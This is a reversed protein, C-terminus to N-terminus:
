RTLAVVSWPVVFVGQCTWHVLSLDGPLSSVNKKKKRSHKFVKKIAPHNKKKCLKSWHMFTSRLTLSTGGDVSSLTHWMSLLLACFALCPITCEIWEMVYACPFSLMVRQMYMYIYRYSHTHKHPPSWAVTACVCVRVCECLFKVKLFHLRSRKHLVARWPLPPPPPLFFSFVRM